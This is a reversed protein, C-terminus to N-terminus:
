AAPLLRASLNNALLRQFFNLLIFFQGLILLFVIILRLFFVAKLWAFNRYFLQQFCLVLLMYLFNLVAYGAVVPEIKLFVSFNSGLFFFYELFIYFLLTDLLSQFHVQIQLFIVLQIQFRAFLFLVLCLFLMM